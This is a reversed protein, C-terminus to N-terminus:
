ERNEEGIVAELRAVREKLKCIEDYLMEEPTLHRVSSADTFTFINSDSMEIDGGLRDACPFAASRVANVAKGRNM